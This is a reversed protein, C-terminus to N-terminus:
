RGEVLHPDPAGRQENATQRKVNRSDIATNHKVALKGRRGIGRQNRGSLPLGESDYRSPWIERPHVGIFTAIIAEAKPWPRALANRLAGDAYHNLRDLRRLSSGRKWVAAVIDAPHWDQSVPKKSTNSTRM